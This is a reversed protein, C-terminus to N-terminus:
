EGRDAKKRKGQNWGQRQETEPALKSSRASKTKGGRLGIGEAKNSFRDAIDITSTM